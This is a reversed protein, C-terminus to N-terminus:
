VEEGLGVGTPAIAPPMMPPMASMPAIIIAIRRMRRWLLDLLGVDVVARGRGAYSSKM